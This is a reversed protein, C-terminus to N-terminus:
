EYGDKWEDGELRRPKSDEGGQLTIDMNCFEEAMGKAAYTNGYMGYSFLTKGDDDVASVLIVISDAGSKVLAKIAKDLAALAESKEDM